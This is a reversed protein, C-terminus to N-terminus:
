TNNSTRFLGSYSFHCFWNLLFILSGFFNFVRYNGFNRFNHDKCSRTDFVTFIQFYSTNDVFNWFKEDGKIIHIILIEYYLLYFLTVEFQVFLRSQHALKGINFLQKSIFFSKYLCESFNNWRLHFTQAVIKSSFHIWLQFWFFLLQWANRSANTTWYRYQIQHSDYVQSVVFILSCFLKKIKFPALRFFGLVSGLTSNM